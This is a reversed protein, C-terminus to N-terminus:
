KSRRLVSHRVHQVANTVLESTIAAADDAYDDLGHLALAARVHFRAIPVSAPISEM